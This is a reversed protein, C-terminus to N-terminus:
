RLRQAILDFDLNTVENSDTRTLQEIKLQMNDFFRGKACPQLALRPIGQLLKRLAICLPDAPEITAPDMLRGSLDLSGAPIM